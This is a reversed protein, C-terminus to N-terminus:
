FLNNNLNYLTKKKVIEYRSKDFLQWPLFEKGETHGSIAFDKLNASILEEEMNYVKKILNKIVDLWIFNPIEIYENPISHLVTKKDLGISTLFDIRNNRSKIYDNESILYTRYNKFNDINCKRLEFWPIYYREHTTIGKSVERGDFGRGVADIYIGNGVSVGVSIGAYREYRESPNHCLDFLMVVGDSDIEKVKQLIEPIDPNINKSEITKMYPKTILTDNRACPLNKCFDYNNIYDDISKVITLNRIPSLEKFYIMLNIMDRTRHYKMMEVLDEKNNINLM